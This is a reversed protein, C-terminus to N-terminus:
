EAVRPLPEVVEEDTEELEAWLPGDTHHRKQNEVYLIARGLIPECLSFSGAGEQWRFYPTRRLYDNAFASSTGKVQKMLQSACVIGPTRVILHVHDSMGNLALVQCRLRQAEARIFPYIQAKLDSTVLSERHKTAWVFHLFIESRSRNM